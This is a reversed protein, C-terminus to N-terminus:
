ARADTVSAPDAPNPLRLDLHHASETIYIATCEGVNELVGGTAWPDLQGNSFIINTCTSFDLEPELGGFYEFVFDYQPYLKFYKACYDAYQTYDFPNDVFMTNGCDATPMALQNCALVNWGYGDLNGTGEVDSFDFCQSFNYYSYYVQSSNYLATLVLKKRQWDDGTTSTEPVNDFSWHTESVPWAPMPELFNSPYPYNTMAMYAYGNEIHEYLAELDTSNEIPNCLNM